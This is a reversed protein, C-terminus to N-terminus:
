LIISNLLVDFCNALLIPLNVNQAFVTIYKPELKYLYFYVIQAYVMLWIM